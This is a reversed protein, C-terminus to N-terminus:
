RARPTGPTCTTGTSAHGHGLRRLVDRGRDGRPGLRGAHLRLAAGFAAVDFHETGRGVEEDTTFAIRVKGHLLEPHRGLWAVVTMIEAIGAKDDAGLLTTGDCTVITHGVCRPLNPNDPM